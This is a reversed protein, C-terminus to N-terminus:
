AKGKFNEPIRLEPGEVGLSESDKFECSEEHAQREERSLFSHAYSFPSKAM